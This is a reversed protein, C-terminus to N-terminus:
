ILRFEPKRDAREVGRAPRNDSGKVPQYRATNPRKATTETRSRGCRSRSRASPSRDLIRRDSLRGAPQWIPCPPAHRRVSSPQRSRDPGVISRQKLAEPAPRAARPVAPCERPSFRTALSTLALRTAPWRRRAPASARGARPFITRGARGRHCAGRRPARFRDLPAPPTRGPLSVPERRLSLAASRWPFRSRAAPQHVLPFGEVADQQVGLVM